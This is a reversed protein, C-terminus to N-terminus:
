WSRRLAMYVRRASNLGGFPGEASGYPIEGGVTMKWLDSFNYGIEGKVIGDGHKLGTTWVLKWEGREETRNWATILAPLIARDFLLAPNVPIHM